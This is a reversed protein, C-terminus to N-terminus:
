QLRKVRRAQVACTVFRLEMRQEAMLGLRNKGFHKIELVRSQAQQDCAFAPSFELGTIEMNEMRKGKRDFVCKAETRIRQGREM